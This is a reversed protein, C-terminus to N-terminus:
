GSTAVEMKYRVPIFDSVIDNGFTHAPYGVILDLGDSSSPGLRGADAVLGQNDTVGTAAKILAGINEAKICIWGWYNDALSSAVVIGACEAWQDGDASAIVQNNSWIKFTDGVAPAATFVNGTGATQITLTTTTNKVIKGWEGEPAAGAGGVDDLIVVNNWVQEDAVFTDAGDVITSTSGSVVTGTFTYWKTHAGRSLASGNRNCVWAFWSEGDAYVDKFIGEGIVAHVGWRYGPMIGHREPNAKFDSDAVTKNLNYVISRRPILSQEYLSKVPM